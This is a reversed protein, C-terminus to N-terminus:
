TLKRVKKNQTLQTIRWVGYGALIFVAPLIDFRYRTQIEVMIHIAAYGGILILLLASLDNQKRVLTITAMLFLCSVSYMLRELKGLYQQLNPRDMEGVSWYISADGETWFKVFKRKFLQAVKKKDQLREKILSIEAKDRAEGLEFQGVYSDDAMNWGGDADANLGVTFKWYPDQNSLPKDTIGNYILSMSVLQQVLMYVVAIGVLKIFYNLSEKKRLPLIKYILVFVGIGLLFFSGAPRIMNGVGVALGIIIWSYKTSLGKVFLYYIGLFFLFTSLHQNTLVSSYIINPIYFTYLIAAARGTFENFGQKALKYVIMSTGISFLINFLKLVSIHDGFLKIVFAEYFTFGLQYPWRLYYGTSAFSFDGLVAQKASEYMLAFDSVPTTKVYFIWWIRIGIGFIILLLIFQKTSLFRNVLVSIMLVIVVALLFIIVFLFKSTYVQMADLFSKYSMVIFMLFGFIVLLKTLTISVISDKTQM